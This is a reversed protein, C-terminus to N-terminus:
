ASQAPTTTRLALTKENGAPSEAELVRRIKAALDSDRSDM